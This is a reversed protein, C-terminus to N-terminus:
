SDRENLKNRTILNIIFADKLETSQQEKVKRKKFKNKKKKKKSNKWM